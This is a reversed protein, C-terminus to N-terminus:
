RALIPKLNLLRDLPGLMSGLPTSGRTTTVEMFDGLRVIQDSIIHLHYHYMPVTFVMMDSGELPDMSVYTPALHLLYWDAVGIVRM